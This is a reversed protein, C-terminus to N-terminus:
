RTWGPSRWPSFSVRVVVIGGRAVIWARSPVGSASPSARRDSSPASADSIAPRTPGAGGSCAASSARRPTGSPAGTPTVPRSRSNSVSSAPVGPPSSRAPLRTSAETGGRLPLATRVVISGSTWRAATSASAPRKPPIATTRGRSPSTSASAPMAYEAGWGGPETKLITVSAPAISAPMALFEFLYGTPM